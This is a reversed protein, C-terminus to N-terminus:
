AARTAAYSRAAVCPELVMQVVTRGGLVAPRDVVHAVSRRSVGSCRPVLYVIGQLSRITTSPIGSSLNIATAHGSLLAISLGPGYVDNRLAEQRKRCAFDRYFLLVDLCTVPEMGDVYRCETCTTSM